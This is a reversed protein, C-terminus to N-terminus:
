PAPEPAQKAISRDFKVLFSVFLGIAIVASICEALPTAWVVGVAGYMSKLWFMSPIDLLGKRLISLIFSRVKKGTAQFVMNLSYSFSCLPVGLAIVDLFSKGFAVTDTDDIFFSVLEGSAGRYFALCGLSFALAYGLTVWIAQKMRRYNKAGYNFAILPLVGQALGMVINFALTNIKKAVGMGAVAASGYEAVLANAFINSVMALTTSLAAPFGIMLVERPIGEGLTVEKPSLTFVQNDKHRVLYVLFYGAAAMNSLLTAVAAGTVEYGPPLLVFMFLPDLVINLLAGLSMGISAQRAAGVSRVLHGCLPNLVTPLAGLIMTWFMYDYVYGYSAADGGILPILRPRLLAILLSYALAVTVGGWLAFAFVGRARERKGAGLFRAILSSGGVGFLNALATMIIYVPMCVSLAAVAAANGTRGVFWTDAFNYIVTVIQSIVTPVALTLVAKGVPCGAFIETEKAAANRKEKQGQEAM